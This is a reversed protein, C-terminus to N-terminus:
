DKRLTDLTRFENVSFNNALLRKAVSGHVKGDVMGDTIINESM